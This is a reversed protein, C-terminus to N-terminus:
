EFRLADAPNARSAHVAKYSVALFAVALSFLTAWLAPAFGPDVRYAFSRLWRGAALYALPLSVANAALVWALFERAQM